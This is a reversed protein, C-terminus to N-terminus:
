GSACYRRWFLRYGEEVRRTYTEVNGAASSAVMSPLETRLKALDAPRGAHALAIAIYGDDDEA